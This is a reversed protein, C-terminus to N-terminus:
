EPKLRISRLQQTRHLMAARPRLRVQRHAPRSGSQHSRPGRQHVRCASQSLGVPFPQAPAVHAIHIGLFRFPQTRLQLGCQISGSIAPISDNLSRMRSYLSPISRSPYRGAVSPGSTPEAHRSFRFPFSGIMARARFSATKSCRKRTLPSTYSGIQRALLLTILVM